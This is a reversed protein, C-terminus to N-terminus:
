CKQRLTPQHLRFLKLFLKNFITKGRCTFRVFTFHVFQFHEKFLLVFKSQFNELKIHWLKGLVKRARMFHKLQKKRKGNVKRLKERWYIYFPLTRDEFEILIFRKAIICKRGWWGQSPRRLIWRGHIKLHLSTIQSHPWSEGLMLSTSHWRSIVKRM